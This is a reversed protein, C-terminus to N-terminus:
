ICSECELAKHHIPRLTDNEELFAERMLKITRIAAEFGFMGAGEGINEFHATNTM